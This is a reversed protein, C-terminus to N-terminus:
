NDDCAAPEDFHGPTTPYAKGSNEKTDRKYVLGLERYASSTADQVQGITAGVGSDYALQELFSEM